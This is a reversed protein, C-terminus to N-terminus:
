QYALTLYVILLGIGNYSGHALIGPWVSDSRLRVWGLVLGFPVLVPLAVLLGHGLGFALATVAVAGAGGIPLLARVGLGRFFLEEAFPVITSAVVANLAFAGARDSRWEDPAFGQEESAHLLPELAAGLLLVLVILGLARWVWTFSFTRLGAAAVPRGLWSAIALTVGVLVAYIVLSGIAFGYEYLVDPDAGGAAQGLFGIAVLLAAVALWAVAPGQRSGTSPTASIQSSTTSM